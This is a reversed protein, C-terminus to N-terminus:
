YSQLVMRVRERDVKGNANRPLGGEVHWVRPLKAASLRGRLYEGVEEVSFEGVVPEVWAAVREGWEEDAVGVVCADIVAPHSRLAEEVDVADITVGGSVIRDIRRGTIWLDGDDDLRGLDGTHYWGADDALPGTSDEGGLYGIARTPGRASIEGDADIRLEVGPMPAGVAGPKDLTVEPTATAIQSSMETAGYTLSLPWGARHARAVLGAPAHAGGILACRFTSPLPVGARHDLLRLLQTPVLSLHTLSPVNERAGECGSVAKGDILRSVIEARFTGFAVLTGGLLFSRVILVLGGVHAPSLSALWVDDQNLRLREAAGRTSAVLNDHSLAIGRPRGSTGSTWLLVQTDAPVTATALRKRAAERERGTLATNLPVPVAGLRWLALLEVVGHEDPEAPFPVVDAPGMGANVLEAVREDVRRGLSEYTYSGHPTILALAAPRGESAALVDVVM